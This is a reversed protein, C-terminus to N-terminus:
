NGTLYVALAVILIMAGTMIWVLSLILFLYKRHVVDEHLAKAAESSIINLKYLRPFFVLSASVVSFLWFILPGIYTLISWIGLQQGRLDSYAIAHFYLGELIAVVAIVQRATEEIVSASNKITDQAISHWFKRTEDVVSQPDSKSEISM